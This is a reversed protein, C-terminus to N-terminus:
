ETVEVESLPQIYRALVSIHIHYHVSSIFTDFGCGCIKM